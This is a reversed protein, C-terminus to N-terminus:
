AAGDVAHVNVLGVDGGFASDRVVEWIFGFLQELRAILYNVDPSGDLWDIFVRECYSVRERHQFGVKNWHREDIRVSTALRQSHTRVRFVPPIVNVALDRLLDHQDFTKIRFNVPPRPPHRMSRENIRLRHTPLRPLTNLNSCKHKVLMLICFSARTLRAKSHVALFRQKKVDLDIQKNLM